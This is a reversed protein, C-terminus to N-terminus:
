GDRADSCNPPTDPLAHGIGHLRPIGNEVLYANQRPPPPDVGHVQSHELRHDAAPQQTTRADREAKKEFHDKIAAREAATHAALFAHLEDSNNQQSLYTVADITSAAVDGRPPPEEDQATFEDVIDDTTRELEDTQELMALEDQTPAFMEAMMAQVADQGIADVLGRQEAFHQLEDVADHFEYFGNLYLLARAYCRARFAEVLFETTDSTRV